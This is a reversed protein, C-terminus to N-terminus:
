ILRAHGWRRGIIAECAGEGRARGDGESRGHVVHAGGPEDAHGPRDGEVGPRRALKGAAPDEGRRHYANLIFALELVRDKDSLNRHAALMAAACAILGDYRGTQIEKNLLTNNTTLASFERTWLPETEAISSTDLWLDTGLERLRRWLPSTPLEKKLQGFRPKFDKRLFDRIETALDTSAGVGIM